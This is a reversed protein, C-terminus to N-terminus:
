TKGAGGVIGAAPAAAPSSGPEGGVAPPPKPVPTRAVKRRVLYVLLGVVLFLGLIPLVIHKVREIGLLLHNIEGAFHYGLWIFVPVSILAAVGDVVLFRVYGMRAMGGMAFIVSRFGPMFRGCFVTLNGHKAFHKEAWDRRKPTMVKRVHRAVFNDGNLGKRGIYYVISDGGLVGVMGAIMMLYVNPVKRSEDRVRVWADPVGNGDTDVWKKSDRIPSHHPNSMWGSTILPIDEPIPVGM